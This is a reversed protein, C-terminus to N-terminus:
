RRRLATRCASPARLRESHVGPGWYMSEDPSAFGGLVGRAPDDSPHDLEWQAVAVAAATASRYYGLSLRVKGGRKVARWDARGRTRTVGMYTSAGALAPDAHEALVLGLEEALAVAEADTATALDFAGMAHSSRAATAGNGEARRAVDVDILAAQMAAATALMAPDTCKGRHCAVRDVLPGPRIKECNAKTYTRLRHKLEKKAGSIDLGRQYCWAQLVECEAHATEDGGLVRAADSQVPGLHAFLVQMMAAQVRARYRAVALAAQVPLAYYGLYVQRVKGFYPAARGIKNKKLLVCM